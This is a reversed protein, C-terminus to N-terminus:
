EKVVCKRMIRAFENYAHISNRNNFDTESKKQELLENYQKRTLEIKELRNEEVFRTHAAFDIPFIGYYTKGSDEDHEIQCICCIFDENKVKVINGVELM